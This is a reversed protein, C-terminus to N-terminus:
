PECSSVHRQCRARAIVLKTRSRQNWSGLARIMAARFSFRITVLAKPDTPRSILTDMARVWQSTSSKAKAPRSRSLRSLDRLANQRRSIQDADAAGEGAYRASRVGPAGGLADVELGSDDALTQLGTQMAYGAAKLSANEIFSEGTEPVMKVDPFDSLGYLALPLDQLLQRLEELKGKNQTAVLLSQPTM